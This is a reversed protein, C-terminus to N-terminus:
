AKSWSDPSARHLISYVLCWPGEHSLNMIVHYIYFFTWTAIVAVIAILYTFIKYIQQMSTIIWSASIQMIIQLCCTSTIKLYRSNIEAGAQVLASILRSDSSGSALLIPTYGKGDPVNVSYGSRIMKRVMQIDQKQFFFGYIRFTFLNSHIKQICAKSYLKQLLFHRLKQCSHSM